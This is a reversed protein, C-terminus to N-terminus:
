DGYQERLRPSLRLLLQMREVENLWEQIIQQFTEDASPVSTSDTPADGLQAHLLRYRALTRDGYRGVFNGHEDLFVVQPIRPAGCIRLENALEADAARDIFRLELQPCAEAIRFLIPCQASCDGCWAGAMCLLRMKRRFSMLLEIQEASLIVQSLVNEWRRADAADGHRELFARYPIAQEFHSQFDLM